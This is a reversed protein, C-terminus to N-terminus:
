RCGPVDFMPIPVCESTQTCITVKCNFPLSSPFSWLWYEGGAVGSLISIATDEVLRQGDPLGAYYRTTGDAVVKLTGEYRNPQGDNDCYRIAASHPSGECNLNSTIASFVTQEITSCYSADPIPRIYVVQGANIGLMELQMQNLTARAACSGRIDWGSEVPSYMYWNDDRNPLPDGDPNAAFNSARDATKPNWHVGSLNYVADAVGIINTQGAARGVVVDLRRPTLVGGAPIPNGYRVYLTHKTRDIENTGGQIVFKWKFTPVSM